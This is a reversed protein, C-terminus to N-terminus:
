EDGAEERLDLLQEAEIYAAICDDNDCTPMWPDIRVGCACFNHQVFSKPDAMAEAPHRQAPITPTSM